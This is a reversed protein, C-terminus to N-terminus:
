KGNAQREIFRDLKEEIRRLRESDSERQTELKTIRNNIAEENASAGACNGLWGTLAIVLAAIVGIAEWDLQFLRRM